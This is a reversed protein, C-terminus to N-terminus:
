DQKHFIVGPGAKLFLYIRYKMANDEWGEGWSKM